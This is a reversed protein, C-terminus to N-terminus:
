SGDAGASINLAEAMQPQTEQVLVRLGSLKQTLSSPKRVPFHLDFWFATGEGM